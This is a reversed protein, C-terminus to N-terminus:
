GAITETVYSKVETTLTPYIESLDKMINFTNKLEGNADYLSLGLKNFLGELKAQVELSKEGEEDMGIKNYHIRLM